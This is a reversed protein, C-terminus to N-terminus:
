VPRSLANNLSPSLGITYGGMDDPLTPQGLRALGIAKRVAARHPDLIPVTCAEIIRPLSPILGAGGLVVRSAGSARAQESLSEAIVSPEGDPDGISFVGSVRSTLDLRRVLEILMECWVEGRTAILFSGEESAAALIGAEAFGVVPLGTMEKLAALGPDGFCAILIADPKEGESIAQAATDLVAHAAIAVAARSSIYRFGFSATVTRVDIASGAEDRVLADVHESVQATTNPNIVLLHPM